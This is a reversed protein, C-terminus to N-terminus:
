RGSTENLCFVLFHSAERNIDTPQGLGAMKTIQLYFDQDDSKGKVYDSATKQVCPM